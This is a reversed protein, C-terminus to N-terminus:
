LHSLAVLLLAQRWSSIVVVVAVVAVVLFVDARVWCGTHDAGTCCLLDESCSRRVQSTHRSVYVCCQRGEIPRDNSTRQQCVEVFLHFVRWINPWWTSRFWRNDVLCCRTCKYCCCCCYCCSCCYCCFFCCCYGAGSVVYRVMRAKSVNAISSHWGLTPTTVPLYWVTM